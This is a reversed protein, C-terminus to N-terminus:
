EDKYIFRLSLIRNNQLQVKLLYEQNNKFTKIESLDIDYKNIGTKLKLAPLRKVPKSPEAVSVISYNLEGDSYPNNLSFSLLRNAIYFNGDNIEKLERYSGTGTIVPDNNCRYTFTWVESRALISKAVYVVVQWAYRQGEKLAPANPPYPLSNGMINAQNIIPPNFTIAEVIDQKDNIVTLVLRHRAERPLPVPPQWIFHPRQNCFEDGDVPDILLLPTMPQLQHVFCQEYVPSGTSLKSESIDVEFCYEYEGEPFRGTQSLTLAYNNKGFSFRSGGFISRNINNAGPHILFVPTQITVVTGAKLERVRINLKAKLNNNFSNIIRAYVLGDLTQGYIAPAFDIVVQAKLLTGSCLLGALLVLNLIQQIRNM